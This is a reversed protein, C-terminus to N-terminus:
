TATTSTANTAGESFHKYHYTLYCFAIMRCYETSKADNGYLTVFPPTAECCPLVRYNTNQQLLSDGVVCAVKRHTKL